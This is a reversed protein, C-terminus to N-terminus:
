FPKFLMLWLIVLLAATGVVALVIPRPSDLLRAYEEPTVAESGGELAETVRRVKRYYPTAVAYMFVTTVVLIGIATWIWRTGWWHGLFGAVIGGSLLLVLAGYFLWLGSLSVQLLASVRAAEREKRLRFSVFMSVGHAAVFLFAGAVHLYVWWRM